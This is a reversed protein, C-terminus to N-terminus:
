FVVNSLLLYHIPLPKFWQELKALQCKLSLHLVQQRGHCISIPNQYELTKKFLIIRSTFHMKTPTKFMWTLLVIIVCSVKWKQRRKRFKKTWTITKQLSTQVGKLNVKSFGHYVKANNDIAYWKTNVNCSWFVVGFIPYCM